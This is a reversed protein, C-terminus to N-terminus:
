LLSFEGRGIAKHRLNPRQQLAAHPVDAV